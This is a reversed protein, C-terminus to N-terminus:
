TIEIGEYKIRDWNKKEHVSRLLRMETAEKTTVM